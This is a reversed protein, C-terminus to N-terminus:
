KRRFLALLANFLRALWGGGEAPADPEVAGGAGRDDDPVAVPKPTPLPVDAAYGAAKLAKEYKLALQGIEVQKDTGNVTRRANAYERLDEDDAEDLADIYDALKKGTFTGLIMGDLLIPVAYQLETALHPNAILNVGLRKSWDAYNRRGTIQVLGRGKYRKGDGAQVNGLDERWEYAQGSAYEEMTRFRDSEWHATALSYAADNIQMRRQEIGDLVAEIREVQVGTLRGNPMIPRVSTFFTARNM